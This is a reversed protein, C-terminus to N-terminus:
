ELQRAATSQDLDVPEDYQICYEITAEFFQSGIDGTAGDSSYWCIFKAPNSPNATVVAGLRDQNDKIDKIGYVRRPSFYGRVSQSRTQLGTVYRVQGKRLEKLTNADTPIDTTKSDSVYVGFRGISRAEVGVSDTRGVRQVTIKSGKVIYNNFLASWQNWGMPQHAGVHTAGNNTPGDPKFAGNANFALWAFKGVSPSITFQQVYRLHAVRVRPM